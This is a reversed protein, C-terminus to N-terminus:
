QLGLEKAKRSTFGQDSYYGERFYDSHHFLDEEYYGGRDESLISVVREGIEHPMLWFRSNANTRTFVFPRLVIENPCIVSSVNLVMFSAESNGKMWVKLRDMTICWSQHAPPHHKDSIAGIILGRVMLDCREQIGSVFRTFVNYTLSLTLDNVGDQDKDNSVFCEGKADLDFAFYGLCHVYHVERFLSFDIADLFGEIDREREIDGINVIQTAPLLTKTGTPVQEEYLLTKRSIGYIAVDDIRSYRALIASGIAGTVGPIIILTPKKM